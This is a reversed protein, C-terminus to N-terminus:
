HLNKSSILDQQMLYPVCQQGNLALLPITNSTFKLILSGTRILVKAYKHCAIGKALYQMCQGDADIRCLSDVSKQYQVAYQTM